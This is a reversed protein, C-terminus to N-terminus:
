RIPLTPHTPVERWVYMAEITAHHTAAYHDAKARDLGLRAQTGDVHTALWGVLVPARDDMIQQVLTAQKGTSVDNKSQSV